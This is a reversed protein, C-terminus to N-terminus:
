VDEDRRKFMVFFLVAVGLVLPLFRVLDPPATNFLTYGISLYYNVAVFLMALLYVYFHKRDYIIFYLLLLVLLM